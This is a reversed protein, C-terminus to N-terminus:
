KCMHIDKCVNLHNMIHKDVVDEVIISCGEILAAACLPEFPGAVACAAAAVPDALDCGHDVVFGIMKGIAKKCITCEIKKWFPNKANIEEPHAKYHAEQEPSLEIISGSSTKPPQKLGDATVATAFLLATLCLVLKYSM